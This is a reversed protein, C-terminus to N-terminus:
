AERAREFAVAHFAGNVLQGLLLELHKFRGLVGPEGDHLLDDLLLTPLLSRM